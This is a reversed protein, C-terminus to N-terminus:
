FDLSTSLLFTRPMGLSLGYTPNAAAWYGSNAVNIVNGRVTISKGRVEFTYRAGLDFRVWGPIQQ